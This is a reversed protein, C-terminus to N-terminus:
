LVELGLAGLVFGRANNEVVTLQRGIRAEVDKITYGDLFVEADAKLTAEPLVIISDNIENRSFHEKLAAAIDQGTLLGAVTVSPGFFKNEVALVSVKAGGIAENLRGAANKLTDAAPTGSIIL